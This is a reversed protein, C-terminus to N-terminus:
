FNRQSIKEHRVCNENEGVRGENVADLMKKHRWIQENGLRIATFLDEVTGYANFFWLNVIIWGFDYITMEWCEYLTILIEKDYVRTYNRDDTVYNRGCRTDWERAM